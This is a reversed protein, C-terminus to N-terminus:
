NFGINDITVNSVEEYFDFKIKKIEAPNFSDKKYSEIPIRVSQYSGYYRKDESFRDLKSIDVKIKPYLSIFNELKVSSTNGNNDVLTILFNEPVYDEENENSFIDFTLQNKINIPSNFDLEYYGNKDYDINVSNSGCEEYGIESLSEKIKVNEFEVKGKDFTNVNYDEEYDAIKEYSSDAYRSYYLTKPLNYDKTNIFLDRNKSMEFTNKLFEYVFTEAIEQQTKEELIQSDEIFLSMPFDKDVGGWLENFRAHNAYGIYIASKFNDLDKSLKVNDYQGMGQFSDVDADHSGHLVLFNIDQLQIDKSAPEYQGYTPAVEVVGKIKLDYNIKEGNDPNYKLNNYSTAIAAAEGGRSHGGVVINNEDIRGYIESSSDKNKSLIYKINELMLVARADNENSLGFDFFGNLVNMDISVMAIGRRALYKGLYDYGKYSDKTMRHNGHVFVFLPCGNKDTPLYVKGKMSINSLDTKFYTDRVKKTMSDYGVYSSLDITDESIYEFEESAYEASSEIEKSGMEVFELGSLTNSGKQLGFIAILIFISMAPVLTIIPLKKKNRIGIISKSIIFVMITIILSILISIEDDLLSTAVIRDVIQYVLFTSIGFLVPKSANTISFINLLLDIVFTALNFVVFIGLTMVIYSLIEYLGLDSIYYYYDTAVIASIILKALISSHKTDAYIKKDLENLKEYIKEKLKMYFPSTRM